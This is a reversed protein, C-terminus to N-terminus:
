PKESVPPFKIQTMEGDKYRFIEPKEIQCLEHMEHYQSVVVELAEAARIGYEKEWGPDNITNSWLSLNCTAILIYITM